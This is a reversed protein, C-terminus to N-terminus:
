CFQHNHHLGIDLAINKSPKDYGISYPRIILIKSHFPFDWFDRDERKKATTPRPVVYAAMEVSM